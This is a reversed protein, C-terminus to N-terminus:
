LRAQPKQRFILRLTGGAASFVTGADKTISMTDTDTFRAAGEDALAVNAAVGGAGMVHNALTPTVTAVIAGTANGKRIRVAQTAGAGAGTVDPIFVVRELTMVFGMVHSLLFTVAGAQDFFGVLPLRVDIPTRIFSPGAEKPM